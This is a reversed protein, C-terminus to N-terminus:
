EEEVRFNITGSVKSLEVRITWTGPTGDNSTFSGDDNLNRSYVEVGNSDFIKLTATGEDIVSSHDINAKVGPNVKAGANVWLYELNESVNSVGTAQFQFNGTSNTIEPNFEDLSEKSCSPFVLFGLLMFM